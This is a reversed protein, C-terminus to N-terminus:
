TSVTHVGDRCVFGVNEQQTESYVINKCWLSILGVRLFSLLVYVVYLSSVSKNEKDSIQYIKYRSHTQPLERKPRPNIGM